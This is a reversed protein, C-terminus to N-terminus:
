TDNLATHVHDAEILFDAVSGHGRTCIGDQGVHRRGYMRSHFGDGNDILHLTQYM